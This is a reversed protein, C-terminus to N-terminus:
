ESCLFSEHSTGEPWLPLALKSCGRCGGLAPPSGSGDTESDGAGAELARRGLLHGQYGCLTALM